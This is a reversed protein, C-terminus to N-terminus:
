KSKYKPKISLYDKYSTIKKNDEKLLKALNPLEVIPLWIEVKDKLRKIVDKREALCGTIIIKADKNEKKIRPVLGYIRDEASQRVGCSNLIVWVAKERKESNKYGLDDLYAAIRESDSKNMQCGITIIYYTKNQM